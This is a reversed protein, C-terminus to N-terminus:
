WRSAIRCRTVADIGVRIDKWFSQKLGAVKHVVVTKGHNAM